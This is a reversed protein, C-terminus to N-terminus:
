LLGCKESRLFNEILGLTQQQWEIHWPLQHKMDKIEIFQVDKGAAKRAKYFMRSHEVPAQQDRDGHYLLIPIDGQGANKLPDMGDVTEGQLQRQLHNEGWDNKIRELSAVGAGAISCRFPSNPRVSAAIAAFGGYSYGFIALRKPDAIGQSVLWAAADDNDDQMKLGWQRDGARWHAFGFGESGRYQPQIVAVGRTALFQTWGTPDWNLYDRAWPGGHPLVVAPVPGREKSWGPPYTVFAPIDLGDRAEFHVFEARGLTKPDIWPREGGLAVFRGGGYFYYATPADPAGVAVLAAGAALNRGLLWVSKGPFSNKVVKVMGVWPAELFVQTIDAANVAIGDIGETRGTDDNLRQYVRVIDFRDNQFLPEPDFRKQELDYSYVAAYNRMHNSIVLLKDPDTDFGVPEIHRREKLPYSLAPHFVWQGSARDKVYLKIWFAGGEVEVRSKILLEGTAPDVGSALYEEKDSGKAVLRSEGTRANYELIEQAFSTTDLKEVLVRDSDALRASFISFNLEGREEAERMAKNMTGHTVFPQEINRGDLDAIYWKRTFSKLSDARTVNAEAIFFIKHNGLFGVQAPRLTASPIWVPPKSLDATDWISIVPWKQDKVGVLAVIHKGDRSLSVDTIAEYQSLADISLPAAHATGATLM